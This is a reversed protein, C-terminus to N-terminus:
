KRNKIKNFEALQKKHDNITAIARLKKETFGRIEEPNNLNKIYELIDPALKLLNMIQTIRARTIGLKRALYFSTDLSLVKM